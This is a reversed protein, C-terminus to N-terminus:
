LGSTNHIGYFMYQPNYINKYLHYLICIFKAMWMIVHTVVRTVVQTVLYIHVIHDRIVRGPGTLTILPNYGM